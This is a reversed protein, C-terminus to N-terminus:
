RVPKEECHANIERIWPEENLLRVIDGVGFEDGGFRSQIERVVRLDEPYDVQLRQGPCRWGPRGFHYFVRYREPHEYLYLTVHERYVKESVNVVMWRLDSTKCVHASVGHPYKRDPAGMAIDCRDELVEDIMEDLLEPDLLPTDGCVRVAIDSGTIEHAWFTRNLVDEESGRIRDIDVESAWEVLVDDRAQTTTALIIEDIRKSRKLRNVLRTLLPVGCVDRLAKNPLRTSGM